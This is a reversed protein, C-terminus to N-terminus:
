MKAYFLDYIQLSIQSVDFNINIANLLGDSAEDVAITQATGVSYANGSTTRFLAFVAAETATRLAESTTIEDAVTDTPALHRISFNAGLKSIEVVMASIRSGPTSAISCGGIAGASVSTVGSVVKGAHMAIGTSLFWGGYVNTNDGWTGANSLSGVWHDPVLSGYPNSLDSCVGVGLRPTGTINGAGTANVAWLVGIRLKSWEPGIEMYRAIHSKNIELCQQNISGGIIRVLQPM